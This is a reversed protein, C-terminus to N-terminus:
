DEEPTNTLVSFTKTLKVAPIEQKKVISHIDQKKKELSVGSKEREKM